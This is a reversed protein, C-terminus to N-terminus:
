ATALLITNFNSEFWSTQIFGGKAKKNKIKIKKDRNSGMFHKQSHGEPAVSLGRMM